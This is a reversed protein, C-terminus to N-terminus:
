ESVYEERIPNLGALMLLKGSHDFLKILLTMLRSQGALFAFPVILTYLPVAILSKAINKADCNPQLAATAGQILAKRLIYTRKWRAPPITEFVIADATWIFRLGAEIKRRFFDQDEGARFEPRFPAADAAVVRRRLLANGTRSDEWRVVEGTPRVERDYIRSKKFWAPPAEDFHRVVPGLVGDVKYENCTNFLSLLWTETPFEDDDILAVYEGQVNEIVKNRALAINRRPECFYRISVPLLRRMEEVTDQASRAEDNDAVLISYTFQNETKQNGLETLLHRLMEPRKYTCVCVSIHARHMEPAMNLSKLASAISVKVDEM